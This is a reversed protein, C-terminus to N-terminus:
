TPPFQAPPPGITIYGGFNGDILAAYEDQTLRHSHGGEWLYLVPQQLHQTSVTPPAQNMLANQTIYNTSVGQAVPTTPWPQGLQAIPFLGSTPDPLMPARNPFGDPALDFLFTGDILLYVNVGAYGSKFYKMLAVGQWNERPSSPGYKSDAVPFPPVVLALPPTFYFNTLIGDNDLGQASFELHAAVRAHGTFSM